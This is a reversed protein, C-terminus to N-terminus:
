LADYQALRTCFDLGALDDIGCPIAVKPMTRSQFRRARRNDDRKGADAKEM